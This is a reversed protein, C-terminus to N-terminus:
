IARHEDKQVDFVDAPVPLGFEAFVRRYHSRALGPIVSVIRHRIDGRANDTAFGRVDLCGSLLTYGNAIEVTAQRVNYGLGREPHRSHHGETRRKIMGELQRYRFAVFPSLLTKLARESVDKVDPEGYLLLEMGMGSVEVDRYKHGLLLAATHRELLIGLRKEQATAAEPLFVNLRLEMIEYVYSVKDSALM